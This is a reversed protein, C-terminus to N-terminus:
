DSGTVGNVSLRVNMPRRVVNGIPSHQDGWAVLEALVQEDADEAEIDVQLDLQQPGAPVSPDLGLMGRADSRSHATVELKTLQIGLREARLAIVTATCSALGARMLWGPSVEAGGGGLSAPMDTRVTQGDPHRVVMALGGAFVAQAPVDPQLGRGPKETLASEVRKVAACITSDPM